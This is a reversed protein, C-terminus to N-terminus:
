KRSLLTLPKAVSFPGQVILLAWVKAGNTYGEALAVITYLSIPPRVSGSPNVQFCLRCARVSCRESPRTSDLASPVSGMHDLILYQLVCHVSM